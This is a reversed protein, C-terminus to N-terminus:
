LFYTLSHLKSIKLHPLLSQINYFNYSINISHYQNTLCSQMNANIAGQIDTLLNDGVHLIYKCAIGLKKSALYFMDTHPKARGNKGSTLIDYFYQGLGYSIPNANGNTVAILPWKSHLAALINHTQATINIKNRWYIIIDMTQDAGLQAEYRNLGFKLLIKEMSKWRWNNVNHFINPDTDLVSLRSKYYDSLKLKYLAPYNKKLFIISTKEAKTIIPNNSYLTNDLDFSIAYFPKLTRYFHM